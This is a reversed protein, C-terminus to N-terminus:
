PQTATISALVATRYTRAVIAMAIITTEFGLISIYLIFSPDAGALWSRSPVTLGATGPFVSSLDRAESLGEPLLILHRDVTGPSVGTWM